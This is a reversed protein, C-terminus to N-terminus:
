QNSGGVLLIAVMGLLKDSEFLSMMLEPDEFIFIASLITVVYASSILIAIGARAKNLWADFFGQIGMKIM